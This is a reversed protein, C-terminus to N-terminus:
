EQAAPTFHRTRGTDSYIHKLPKIVFKKIKKTFLVPTNNKTLHDFGNSKNLQSNIKPENNYNNM